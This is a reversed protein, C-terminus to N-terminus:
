CCRASPNRDQDDARRRWFTREDMISAGPHHARQHTAYARYANAGLMGELVARALRAARVATRAGNM